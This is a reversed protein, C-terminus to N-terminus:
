RSWPRCRRRRAWRRWCRGRGHGGPRAWARPWPPPTATPRCRTGPPSAPLLAQVLDPLLAAMAAVGGSPPTFDLALALGRPTPTVPIAPLVFAFLELLDYAPLQPQHLRNRAAPAHVLLPPAMGALAVGAARSDLELLEGDETLIAARAFGAVVAPASPLVIRPASARPGIIPPQGPSETM